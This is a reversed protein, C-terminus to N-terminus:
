LAGMGFIVINKDEYAVPYTSRLVPEDVVYPFDNKQRKPVLIYSIHNAKATQTDGQYIKSVDASRDFWGVNGYFGFYNTRGALVVPDIMDSYSVFVADKSTATRIWSIVPTTRNDILPYAFENKIVM